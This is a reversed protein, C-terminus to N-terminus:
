LGSSCVVVLWVRDVVLPYLHFGLCVVTRSMDGFWLLEAVLRCVDSWIGDMIESESSMEVGVPEVWAAWM